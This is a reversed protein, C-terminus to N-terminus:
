WMALYALRKVLICATVHVYRGSKYYRRGLDFTRLTIIQSISAKSCSSAKCLPEYQLGATLRGMKSVLWATRPLEDKVTGSVM